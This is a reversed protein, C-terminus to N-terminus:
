LPPARVQSTLLPTSFAHKLGVGATGGALEATAAGLGGASFAEPTASPLPIFHDVAAHAAAAAASAAAVASAVVTPGSPALAGVAQALTPSVAEADSGAQQLQQPAMFTHGCSVSEMLFQLQEQNSM